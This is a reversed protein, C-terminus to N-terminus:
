WWQLQSQSPSRVTHNNHLDTHSLASFKSTVNLEFSSNSSVDVQVSDALIRGTCIYSGADSTTLPSLQLTGRTVTGETTLSDIEIVTGDPTTWSISIDGSRVGVVTEVECQLSNNAGAILSGDSEM